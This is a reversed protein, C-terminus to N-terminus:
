RQRTCRPAEQLLRRGSAAWSGRVLRSEEPTLWAADPSCLGACPECRASLPTSRGRRTASCRPCAALGTVERPHFTRSGGGYARRPYDQGPHVGFPPPRSSPHDIFDASRNTGNRVVGIDGAVVIFDQHAGPRLAFNPNEQPFSTGCPCRNSARHHMLEPECCGM